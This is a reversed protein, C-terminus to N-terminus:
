LRAWGQSRQFDSSHASEQQHARDSEGERNQLPAGTPDERGSDQWPEGAAANAWPHRRLLHLQPNRDAPIEPSVQQCITGQAVLQWKTQGEFSCVPPLRLFPPPATLFLSTPGWLAPPIEPRGWNTAVIVGRQKTACWKEWRKCFDAATQRARDGHSSPRLLWLAPSSLFTAYNMEVTGDKERMLRCWVTLVDMTLTQQM